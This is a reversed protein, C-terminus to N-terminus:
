MHFLAWKCNIFVNADTANGGGTARHTQAAASSPSPAPWRRM